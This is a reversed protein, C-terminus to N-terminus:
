RQTERPRAPPQAEYVDIEALQSGEFAVFHKLGGDMAVKASIDGDGFLFDVLLPKCSTRLPSSHKETEPRRHEPFSFCSSRM